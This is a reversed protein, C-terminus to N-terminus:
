IDNVGELSGIDMLLAIPNFPCIFSADIKERFGIENFIPHKSHSGCLNEDNLTTTPITYIELLYIYM